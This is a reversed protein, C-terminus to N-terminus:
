FLPWLLRLGLLIIVFGCVDFLVGARIMRPIPVLGTGYAIANPPTSVPLMFGYSAGLVEVLGQQGM